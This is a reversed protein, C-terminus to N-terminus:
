PAQGAFARYADMTSGVEVVRVAYGSKSSSEVDGGVV